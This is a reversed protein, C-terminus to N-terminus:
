VIPPRALRRLADSYVYEETVSYGMMDLVEDKDAQNKCIVVFYFDANQAETQEDQMKGRKKKVANLKEKGEVAEPNEFMAAFREDGGFLLEADSELFGLEDFSINNEFALDGLLQLDFDGMMEQNNFQVNLIKEEREDVDIVAVTLNYDQTGELTDLINLRQHGSVLYGTRKNWVLPSVLGHGKLSKALEQKAVDSIVRPNYPAGKLLSRPITETEFKQFQSLKSGTEPAATSTAAKTESKPKAQKPQKAKAM